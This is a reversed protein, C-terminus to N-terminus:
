FKRRSTKQRNDIGFGVELEFIRGLIGCFKTVPGFNPVRFPIRLKNVKEM